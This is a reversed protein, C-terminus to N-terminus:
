CFAPRSQPFHRASDVDLKDYAFDSFSQAPYFFRPESASTSMQQASSFTSYDYWLPQQQQQLTSTVLGSITPVLESSTFENLNESLTTPVSAALLQPHIMPTPLMSFDESLQHEMPYSSTEYPARFIYNSSNRSTATSCSSLSGPSNLFGQSHSRSRQNIDFSFDNVSAFHVSPSRQRTIDNFQKPSRPPSLIDSLDLERSDFNFAGAFTTSLSLNRRSQYRNTDQLISSMSSKRTPEAIRSNRRSIVTAQSTQSSSRRHKSKMVKSPSSGKSSSSAEDSNMGEGDSEIAEGEVGIKHTRRTHKTM